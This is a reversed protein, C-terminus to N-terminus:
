AGNVKVAISLGAAKVAAEQEIKSVFQCNCINDIESVSWGNTRCIELVKNLAGSFADEATLFAVGIIFEIGYDTQLGRDYFRVESGFHTLSEQTIDVDMWANKNNTKFIIGQVKKVPGITAVTVATM